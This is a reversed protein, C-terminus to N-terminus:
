RPTGGPVIDFGYHDEVLDVADNGSVGHNEILYNAIEFLALHQMEDDEADLIGKLEKRRDDDMM